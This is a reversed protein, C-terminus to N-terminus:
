SRSDGSGVLQHVRQPSIELLKGIDRLPMNEARLEQAAKRLEEVAAAQARRVEERYRAARALHQEVHAPRQIQVRLDFTDPEQDTMLAILDRAMTEVERLHRAQTAREVEPVWLHWYRGDRTVQVTYPSM